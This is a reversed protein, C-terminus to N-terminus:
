IFYRKPLFFTSFMIANAHLFENAVDDSFIFQIEARVFAFIPIPQPPLPPLTM